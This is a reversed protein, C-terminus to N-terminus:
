GVLVLWIASPLNSTVGGPTRDAAHASAVALRAATLGTQDLGFLQGQASKHSWAASPEHAVSSPMIFFIGQFFIRLDTPCHSLAMKVSPLGPAPGGPESPTRWAKLRLLLLVRLIYRV